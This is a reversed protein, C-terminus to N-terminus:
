QRVCDDDRWVGGGTLCAVHLEHQQRRRIPSLGDDHAQLRYSVYVGLCAALVISIQLSFLVLGRNM